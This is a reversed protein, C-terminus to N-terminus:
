FEFGLNVQPEILKLTELAKEPSPNQLFSPLTRGIQSLKGDKGRCYTEDEEILFSNVQSITVKIKSLASKKTKGPPLNNKIELYDHLLDGIDSQGLIERSILSKKPLISVSLHNRELDKRAIFPLWNFALGASDVPVAATLSILIFTTTIGLLKNLCRM